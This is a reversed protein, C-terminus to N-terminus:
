SVAARAAESAATSAALRAMYLPALGEDKLSFNLGCSQPEFDIQIFDGRLIQGSAILRALPQVLFHEIARKLHRAGYEINTGENLLFQRATPTVSFTFPRGSEVNSVRARISNLEIELIRGLQGAGLPRFVILKDLRNIFEPTFRRRAAETGTRALEDSWPENMDATVESQQVAASFGLRPKM